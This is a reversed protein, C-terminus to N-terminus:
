FKNQMQIHSLQMDAFFHQDSKSFMVINTQNNNFLIDKLNSIKVGPFEWKFMM